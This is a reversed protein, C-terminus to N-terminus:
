SLLPAPLPTGSTWTNSAVRYIEVTAMPHGVADLGGIVYVRGGVAAAALDGRATPMPALKRWRNTRPDYAQVTHLAAKFNSSFGGIAL